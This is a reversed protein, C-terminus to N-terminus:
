AAEEQLQNMEEVDITLRYGFFKESEDLMYSMVEHEYSASVLVADHIPIFAIKNKILHRWIKTFFQVEYYSGFFPAQKYCNDYCSEKRATMKEKFLPRPQSKMKILADAFEPYTKALKIWLPHVENIRSFVLRFIEEKMRDREQKSVVKGYYMEAIVKYIDVGSRLDSEFKGLHKIDFEKKMAYVLTHMQFTKFDLQTVADFPNCRLVIFKRLPSSMQSFISYARGSWTEIDTSVAYKHDFDEAQYFYQVTSQYLSEAIENAYEDSVNQNRSKRWFRKRLESRLVDKSSDPVVCRFQKLNREIQRYILPPEGFCSNLYEQDHKRLTTWSGCFLSKGFETLVYYHQAYQSCRGTHNIWAKSLKRQELVGIEILFDLRKDNLLKRLNASRIIPFDGNNIDSIMEDSCLEVDNWYQFFGSQMSRLYRLALICKKKFGVKQGLDVGNKKCRYNFDRNNMKMLKSIVDVKFKDTAESSVVHNNVRM